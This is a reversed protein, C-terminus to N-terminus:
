EGKTELRRIEREILLFTSEIALEEQYLVTDHKEENQLSELMCQNDFSQNNIFEKLKEYNDM